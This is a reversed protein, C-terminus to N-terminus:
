EMIQNYRPALVEPPPRKARFQKKIARNEELKKEAIMADVKRERISKPRTKERTDFEFPKPVTIPRKKTQQTHQKPQRHRM